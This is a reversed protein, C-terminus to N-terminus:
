TPGDAQLVRRGTVAHMAAALPYGIMALRTRAQAGVGLGRGEEATYPALPVRGTAIMM